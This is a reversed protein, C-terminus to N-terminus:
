GGYRRQRARINSALWEEDIGLGDTRINVTTTAHVTIGARVHTRHDGDRWSSRYTTVDRILSWPIETEPRRKRPAVRLAYRDMSVVVRPRFTRWLLWCSLLLSLVAVAAMFGLLAWEALAEPSTLRWMMLAFWTFLAASALTFPLLSLYGSRGVTVVVSEHLHPEGADTHGRTRMLELDHALAAPEVELNRASIALPTGFSSLRRRTDADQRRMRALYADLDALRLVVDHPGAAEVVSVESWAVRPYGSLTIGEADYVVVPANRTVDVAVAVTVLAPIVAWPLVAWSLLAALAILGATIVAVVLLIILRLRRPARIEQQGSRSEPGISSM